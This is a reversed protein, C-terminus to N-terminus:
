ALSAIQEDIQKLAAELASRRAPSSTRQSLISERQLALSQMQRARHTRVQEAARRQEESVYGKDRPVTAQESASAM